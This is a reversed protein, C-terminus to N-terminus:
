VSGFRMIRLKISRLVLFVFNALEIDVVPLQSALPGWIRCGAFFEEVLTETNPTLGIIVKGSVISVRHNAEFLCAFTHM